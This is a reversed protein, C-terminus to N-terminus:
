GDGPKGCLMDPALGLFASAESRDQKISVEFWPVLSAVQQFQRAMGFGLSEPAIIVFRLHTMHRTLARALTNVVGLMDHFSVELRTADTLDIVVARPRPPVDEELYRNIAGRVDPPSVEGECVVCAVESQEIQRVHVPM